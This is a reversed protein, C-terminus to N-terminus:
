YLEKSFDCYDNVMLMVDVDSEADYDGRAYSGFLVVKKLKDGFVPRVREILENLIMKLEEPSKATLEQLMTVEGKWLLTPSDEEANNYWLNVQEV